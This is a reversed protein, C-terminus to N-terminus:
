RHRPGRDRDHKMAKAHKPKVKYYSVPVGRVEHPVAAVTVKTWRAGPRAMVFWVDNHLSWYKGGFLFVNFDVHPATYVATGPVIVLQPASTIVPPALMVAPAGINVNVDGATAPGFSMGVSAAVVLVGIVSQRNM